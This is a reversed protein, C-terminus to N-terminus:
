CIVVITIQSESVSVNSFRYTWFELLGTSGIFCVFAWALYVCVSFYNAFVRGSDNGALAKLHQASLAPAFRPFRDFSGARSLQPYMPLGMAVMHEQVCLVFFSPVSVDWLGHFLSAQPEKALLPRELARLRQSEDQVAESSSTQDTAPPRVPTILIWM